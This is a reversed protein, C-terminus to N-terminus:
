LGATEWAVHYRITARYIFLSQSPFYLSATMAWKLIIYAQLFGIFSGDKLGKFGSNFGM